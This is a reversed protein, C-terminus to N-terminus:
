IFDLFIYGDRRTIDLPKICIEERFIPGAYVFTHFEGGEGAPDIGISKFETILDTSLEAGLYKEPVIGAKVAIIKAKFGRALFQRVVELRTMQWLPELYNVGAKASVKIIWDLHERLDIDGYVGTQINQDKMGALLNIFNTEYDAWTTSQTILPLGISAAQKALMGDRIGHSRSRGPDETMMTVLMKPTYGREVAMWFALCSDKGGSWSCFFSRDM